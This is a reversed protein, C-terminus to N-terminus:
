FLNILPLQLVMKSAFSLFIKPKLLFVASSNIISTTIPPISSPLRGQARALQMWEKIAALM